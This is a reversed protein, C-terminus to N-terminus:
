EDVSRTLRLQPRQPAGEAIALLRAFDGRASAELQQWQRAEDARVALAALALACGMWWAKNM